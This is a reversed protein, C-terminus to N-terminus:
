TRARRTAPTGIVIASDHLSARPSRRRMVYDGPFEPQEAWPRRLCRVEGLTASAAAMVHGSSAMTSAWPTAM